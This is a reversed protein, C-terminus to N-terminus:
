ASCVIIDEVGDALLQMLVRELEGCSVPIPPELFEWGDNESMPTCLFVESKGDEFMVVTASKM